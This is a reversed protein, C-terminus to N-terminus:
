KGAPLWGNAIVVPDTCRAGDAALVADNEAAEDLAAVELLVVVVNGFDGGTAKLTTGACNCIVAGTLTGAMAIAPSCFKVCCAAAWFRVILGPSSTLVFRMTNALCSM